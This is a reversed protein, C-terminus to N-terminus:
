DHQVELKVSKETATRDLHLVIDGASKEYTAQWISLAFGELDTEAIIHLVGKQDIDAKM